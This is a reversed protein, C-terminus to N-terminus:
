DSAPTASKMKGTPPRPWSQMRFLHVIAMLGSEKDFRKYRRRCHSRDMGQFGDFFNIGTLTKRRNMPLYFESRWWAMRRLWCLLM